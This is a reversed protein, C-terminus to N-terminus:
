ERKSSSAIGEVAEEMATADDEGGETTAAADEDEELDFANSDPEPGTFDDEFPEANAVTDEKMDESAVDDDSAVYTDVSFPRAPDYLDKPIKMRKLMDRMEEYYFEDFNSNTLNSTWTEILLNNEDDVRQSIDVPEAPWGTFM